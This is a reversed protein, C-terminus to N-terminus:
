KEVLCDLGAIYDDDLKLKLSKRLRDKQTPDQKILLCTLEALHEKEENMIHTLIRKSEEDTTNEIQSQYLGIADAEAIIGSRTFEQNSSDISLKDSKEKTLKVCTM